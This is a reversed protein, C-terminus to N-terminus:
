IFDASAGIPTEEMRLLQDGAFLIRGVVIGTAVVGDSLLNYIKDKIPDALMSVVASAELAKKDEM